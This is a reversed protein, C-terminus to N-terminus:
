PMFSSHVRTSSNGIRNKQWSITTRRPATEPTPCPLSIKALNPFNQPLKETDSRNMMLATVTTTSNMPTSCASEYKPRGPKQATTSDAAGSNATMMSPTSASLPMRSGEASIKRIRSALSLGTSPGHVLLVVCFQTPPIMTQTTIM